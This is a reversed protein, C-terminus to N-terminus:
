NMLSTRSNFSAWRNELMQEFEKQFRVKGFRLANQNADGSRFSDVRHEFKEVAAILSEVTPERFLLGTEGEQIIEGAAGRAYAIVPCGAAQAEAMVIGFDEEAAHVLARARGLLEAAAENSQRGLFKVNPGALRQLRKKNPGEGIVLLPLDLKSFAEVTLELRKHRVLRSFALYYDARPALPQFREIEVPPYIVQAERRYARCICSATWQSNAVFYDVRRAAAQDWLRLYHLILHAAPALMGHQFYDHASQWAYRLPAHTYSIHLQDPGCLVGHAVAYSFSLVIDYGRLDFKEVALPLLPLYNRYGSVGGPLHQIWSTIVKQKGIETDAFPSPKYVLTYIPTSPYRELVAALVREAGSYTTLADTVIALKPAETM